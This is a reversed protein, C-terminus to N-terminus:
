QFDVTPQLRLLTVINQSNIHALIRLMPLKKLWM